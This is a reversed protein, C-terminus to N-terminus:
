ASRLHAASLTLVASRFSRSSTRQIRGIARSFRLRRSLLARRGRSLRFHTSENWRYIPSPAGIGVPAEPRGHDDVATGEGRVHPCVDRAAADVHRDGRQQRTQGIAKPELAVRQDDLASLRRTRMGDPHRAIARLQRPCVHRSPGRKAREARRTRKRRARADARVDVIGPRPPLGRRRRKVGPAEAAGLATKVGSREDVGRGIQVPEGNGRRVGSGKGGGRLLRAARRARRSRARRVRSGCVNRMCRKSPTSSRCANTIRPAQM